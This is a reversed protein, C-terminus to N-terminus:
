KAKEPAKPQMKAASLKGEQFQEAFYERVEQPNFSLLTGGSEFHQIFVKGVAYTSTGTLVPMAVAGLTPGVFPIFKLLSGATLASTAPIFGGLLSAIVHKGTDKRFPVGYIGCLKKLMALQTGTVALFDFVPIPMLGFGMSWYMCKRVLNEAEGRRGSETVEMTKEVTNM